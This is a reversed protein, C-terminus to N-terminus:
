EFVKSKLFDLSFLQTQKKYFDVSKELFSKDPSCVFRVSQEIILTNLTTTQSFNFNLGPKNSLVYLRKSSIPFIVEKAIINDFSNPEVKYVMPYDGLLFNDSKIVFLKSHFESAQKQNTIEKIIKNPLKLREAKMFADKMLANDFQLIEGCSNLKEANEFLYNFAFDFKPLRWMLHILFFQLKSINDISHLDEKNESERFIEIISSCDNDLWKYWFDEIVSSSDKENYITNRDRHYLIGKPRIENSWIKDTQKDYVYTIGKDNLFGKIYFQPVYHHRSSEKM